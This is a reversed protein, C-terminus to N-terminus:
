SSSSVKPLNKLLRRMTILADSIDGPDIRSADGHAVSNRVKLARDFDKVDAPSWIGEDLLGERIKIISAIGTEGLISRGKEEVASLEHLLMASLVMQYREERPDAMLSRLLKNHVHQLQADLFGLESERFTKRVKRSDVIWTLGLTITVGLVASALGLLIETRNEGIILSNSAAALGVIGTALAIFPFARRQVRTKM